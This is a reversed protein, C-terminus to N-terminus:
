GERPFRLIDKGRSRLQGGPYFNLSGSTGRHFSVLALQARATQSPAKARVRGRAPAACAPM